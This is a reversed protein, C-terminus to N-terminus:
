VNLYVLTIELISDVNDGYFTEGFSDCIKLYGSSDLEGAFTHVPEVSEVLRFAEGLSDVVGERQIASALARKVIDNGIDVHTETFFVLFSSVGEEHGEGQWESWLTEGIRSDKM